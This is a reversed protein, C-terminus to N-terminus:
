RRRTLDIVARKHTGGGLLREGVHATVAFTLFRDREVDQLASRVTVSEGVQSGAV